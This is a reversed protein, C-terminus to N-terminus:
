WLGIGTWGELCVHSSSIELSHDVLSPSLLPVSSVGSFPSSRPPVSSAYRSLPQAISAEVNSRHSHSPPFSTQSM